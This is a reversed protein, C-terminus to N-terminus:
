VKTFRRQRDRLRGAPCARKNDATLSRGALKTTAKGNVRPRLSYRQCRVLVDPSVFRDSLPLRVSEERYGLPLGPDLRDIRNAHFVRLRRTFEGVQEPPLRRSFEDPPRGYFEEFWAPGFFYFVLQPERRLLSLLEEEDWRFATIGRAQLRKAQQQWADDLKRARLLRNTCLFFEKTEPLFKGALFVDVLRKLGAATISKVHKCQYVRM